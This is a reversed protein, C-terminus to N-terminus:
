SINRNITHSIDSRYISNLAVLLLIILLLPNHTTFTKTINSNISRIGRIACYLIIYLRICRTTSSSRQLSGNETYLIRGPRTTVRAEIDGGHHVGTFVCLLVNDFEICVGYVFCVLPNACIFPQLLPTCCYRSSKDSVIKLANILPCKVM